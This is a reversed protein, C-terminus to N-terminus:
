AKSVAEVSTYDSVDAVLVRHRVDLVVLLDRVNHRVGRVDDVGKDSCLALECGKLSEVALVPAILSPSVPDDVDVDQGGEHLVAVADPRTRGVKWLALNAVDSGSRVANAVLVDFCTESTLNESRLLM